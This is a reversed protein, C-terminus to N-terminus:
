AFQRVRDGHLLRDIQAVANAVGNEARINEGLAAARERMPQDHMAQTIAHALRESTLKKRAIPAPSVGLAQVRQGWFPQDGMFPIIMSPVGARLGAATTGAGGHHVVAAMRPFLWSHPISGIMHVHSPVSDSKMGGWGAAVVGRQGSQALADFAIQAAQQPDRNGMSGFGIYVPADGANLFDVLDAPPQFDHPEDLFWYGTIHHTEDWDHPRPLVHASYGYLAPIRQQNLAAYPGWFSGKRAGIAKRILADSVKSTQWFMQQAIHFSLRNLPAGLSANPVLPAPFDSTPSFPFVYAQMLPIHLHQAYTFVGGIGGMGALIMDSGQLLDPMIEALKSAYKGSERQMKQMIVLFNGKEIVSRWEESQTIEEISIGTSRFDLDAEASLGAFNETALLRVDYGAQRLGRGLAVYPQVDGRSGAAVITITTM